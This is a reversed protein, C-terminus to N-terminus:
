PLINLGKHATCFNEFSLGWSKGCLMKNDIFRVNKAFVILGVLTM